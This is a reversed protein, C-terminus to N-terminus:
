ILDELGVAHLALNLLNRVETPSGTNELLLFCDGYSLLKMKSIGAEKEVFPASM